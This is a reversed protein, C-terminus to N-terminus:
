RPVWLAVSTGHGPASRICAGGGVEALRGRLSHRIGFGEQREADFGAGDDRVTVEVRDGHVAAEVVACAAGSHKLVNGLAEQVARSLARVSTSHVDTRGGYRNVFTARIGAAAL